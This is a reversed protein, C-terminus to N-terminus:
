VQVFARLLLSIFFDSIVVNAATTSIPHPSDGCDAGAGSAFGTASAACGSGGVALAGSM